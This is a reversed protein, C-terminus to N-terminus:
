RGFYRRYVRLAGNYNVIKQPADEVRDDIINGTKTEMEQLKAAANTLGQTDGIAELCRMAVRQALMSHLEVPIQPIITEEIAAVIDGPGMRTPLTNTGQQSILVTFQPYSSAVSFNAGVSIGIGAGQVIVNAGSDSALIRVPLNAQMVTSLTLAVDNATTDASVDVRVLTGVANPSPSDSGSVDFWYSTTITTSTTQDTLVIFSGPVISAKPSCGINCIQPLGFTYTLNTTTALGTPTVAEGALRFPTKSSTIDFQTLGQFASPINEVSMLGNYYDVSTIKTVRSEEVLQNPRLYYYFRLFGSSPPRNMPVIVIEDGEVYYKTIFGTTVAYQQYPLDDLQIRTMQFINGANDVYAVNKLKNGVARTPIQYRGQASNVPVDREILLYNEHYLLVHPVVGMDMEENAFQLFDGEDISNMTQPLM